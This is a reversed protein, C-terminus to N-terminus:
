AGAAAASKHPVFIGCGLKRGLGLGTEQVRLSQEPALPHLMLSFGGIDAAGARVGGRKGCVIQCNIGAGDLLEVVDRRFAGEEANGTAVLRAYLTGHPLLSRIRGAGVAVKGGIDLRAGALGLAQQARGLPLRLTLRARRTLYIDGSGSDAGHIPHIGADDEAELWELERALACFLRYSHDHPIVGGRLEFAVDVVAM